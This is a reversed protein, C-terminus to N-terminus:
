RIAGRCGVGGLCGMRVWGYGQPSGSKMEIFGPIDLGRAKLEVFEVVFVKCAKLEALPRGRVKFFLRQIKWGWGHRRRKKRRCRRLRRCTREARWSFLEFIEVSLRWKELADIPLVEYSGHLSVLVFDHPELTGLSFGGLDISRRRIQTDHLCLFPKMSRNGDPWDEHRAGRNAENQGVAFDCLTM